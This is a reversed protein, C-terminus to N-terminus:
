PQKRRYTLDFIERGAEHAKQEFSTLARGEFRPAWGGIDDMGEGESANGTSVPLKGERVPAGGVVKEVGSEWVRTLPSDAGSREGVHVNDFDESADAVDRMQIAYSSWDTALRWLGGPELVRAALGVFNEQVLRRKHHRTKHWPDPFFVWLENVSGAPLMTALVEPANAQVVRVNRLGKQGVRLLTQALGPKYVELALFNRAPDQEAAHCVAEGLGSGIEVVLPAERDFAADADFVFDPHVSTDTKDRPVDIVYKEAYDNWAQQRRGQLRNGRRVFSVTRTLFPEAAHATETVGDANGTGGSSPTHSSSTEHTMEKLIATTPFTGHSQYVQGVQLTCQHENGADIFAKM